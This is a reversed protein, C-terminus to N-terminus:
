RGGASRMSGTVESVFSAVDETREVATGTVILDAGARVLDAAASGSRIGGGVVLTCRGSGKVASVMSAARRIRV